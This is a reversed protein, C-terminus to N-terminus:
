ASIQQKLGRGVLEILASYEDRTGRNDEIVREIQEETIRFENFHSKRLRILNAKGFEFREFREIVAVLQVYHEDEILLFGNRVAKKAKGLDKKLKLVLDQTATEWLAESTVELDCLALWLDNYLKFQTESYRFYKAKIKETELQYQSKAKEIEQQLKSKELEIEKQLNNRFTDSARQLEAKEVQLIRGAWVKGLWTSFGLIILAGGGLSSLVVVSLGFLDGLSM